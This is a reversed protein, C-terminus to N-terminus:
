RLPWRHLAEIRLASFSGAGVKYKEAIFILRNAYNTNRERLEKCEDFYRYAQAHTVNRGKMSFHHMKSLQMESM